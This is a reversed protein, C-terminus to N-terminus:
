GNESSFLVSDLSVVVVSLQSRILVLFPIVTHSEVDADGEAEDKQEDAAEHAEVSEEGAVGGADVFLRHADIDIQSPSADHEDEAKDHEEYAAALLPLIVGNIGAGPFFASGGAGLPGRKPKFSYDQASINACTRVDFHF